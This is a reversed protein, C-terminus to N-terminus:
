IVAGAAITRGDKRILIRGLHKNEKFKLIPIWRKRETLEIEVIAAQNSGLHKLKKKIVNTSDHKDVLSVLKSIRAPQQCVGRFLIFSTGPLLPRDMKFTLMQVTFNQLALIDYDVSVALDGGEIDEPHAHRLKLMAFDGKTTIPVQTQNNGTMIRDVLVSQESPYLTISEGPQISGSEVKGSIIAEENKASSIVELTSFLFPCNIVGENSLTGVGKAVLELNEVLNPGKYWTQTDPYPTKYVGEGSLGSCPVWSVQDEKYGIDDFFTTLENRIQTFRGYDWDATDMKNMAVVVKSVGMSRALLTHEKTQGDLNFGSEFADTGCDITLLAVDAQSIGAIANPVFDRHGPADVITFKATKTEFDSTCISVTVGREREEQTQDMVWALHFSGKGIRESEKKLKRIHSIDVAGIDYLLRGMLTSKGADVHGLVVFSCHPKANSLYKVIDVPDRPKTPNVIKKYAKVPVEEEKQIQEDEGEFWEPEDAVSTEKKTVKLNSLDDNVQNFVKSQADLILDDPSPMKFNTAAQQRITKNKNINSIKNPYFVTFIEEYKRKQVRKCNEGEDSSETLTKTVELTGENPLPDGYHASSPFQLQKVAIWPDLPSPENKEKVNEKALSVQAVPSASIEESAKLGSQKSLALLKSSLSSSSTRFSDFSEGNKTLSTQTQRKVSPQGAGSKKIREALSFTPKTDISTKNKQLRSLLSVSRDFKNKDVNNDHIMSPFNTEAANQAAKLRALQELKSMTGSQPGLSVSRFKNIFYNVTLNNISLINRM